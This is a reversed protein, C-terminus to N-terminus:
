SNLFFQFKTKVMLMFAHLPDLESLEKETIVSNELNETHIKANKLESVHNHLFGL